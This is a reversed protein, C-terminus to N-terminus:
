EFSSRDKIETVNLGQPRGNPTHDNPRHRKRKRKRLGTCLKRVQVEIWDLSKGTQRSRTAILAFGIASLVIGPLGPIFGLFIGGAILIAGLLIVLFSVLANRRGPWRTYVNAFRHGPKDNVFARYAAKFQDM